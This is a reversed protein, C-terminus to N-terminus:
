EAFHDVLLRRRIARWATMAGPICVFVRGFAPTL